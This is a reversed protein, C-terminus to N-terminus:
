SEYIMFIPGSVLYADQGKYKWVQDGNEWSPRQIGFIAKKAM